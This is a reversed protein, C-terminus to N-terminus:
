EDVTAAADVEVVVIVMQVLVDMVMSDHHWDLVIYMHILLRHNSPQTLLPM